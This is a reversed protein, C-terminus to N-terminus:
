IPFVLSYTMWLSSKRAWSFLTQKQSGCDKFSQIQFVVGRTYIGLGVCGLCSTGVLKLIYAVTLAQVRESYLYFTFEVKQAVLKPWFDVCYQSSVCHVPGSTQFLGIISFLHSGDILYAPRNAQDVEFVYWALYFTPCVLFEWGKIFDCYCPILLM